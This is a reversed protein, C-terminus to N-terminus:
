THIYVSQIYSQLPHVRMRGKSLCTLNDVFFLLCLDHMCITITFLEFFSVKKEYLIHVLNAAHANITEDDDCDNDDFKYDSDDDCATTTM